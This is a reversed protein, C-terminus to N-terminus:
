GMKEQVLKRLEYPQEIHSYEHISSGSRIIIKGYGMKRALIGQEVEIADIRNIVTEMQKKNFIGSCSVVTKDGVEIYTNKHQKIVLPLTIIGVGFLTLLGHAVLSVKYWKESMRFQKM